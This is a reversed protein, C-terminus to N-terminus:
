QWLRIALMVSLTGIEKAASTDSVQVSIRIHLGYDTRDSHPSTPIVYGAGTQSSLLETTFSSWTRADYSKEGTVKYKFNNSFNSGFVHTEIDQIYPGLHALDPVLLYTVWSGDGKTTFQRESCVEVFVVRADTSSSRSSSSSRVSSALSSLSSAQHESSRM